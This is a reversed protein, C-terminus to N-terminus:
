MLGTARLMKAGNIVEKVAAGVKEPDTCRAVATVKLHDKLSLRPQAGITLNGKSIRADVHWLGEEFAKVSKAGSATFAKWDSRKTDRLDRADDPEYEMLHRIVAEGLTQDDVDKSFISLSDTESIHAVSCVFLQRDFEFIRAVGEKDFVAPFQPTRKFWSM